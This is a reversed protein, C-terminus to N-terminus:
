PQETVTMNQINGLLSKLENFLGDVTEQSTAPSDKYYDLYFDINIKDLSNYHCDSTIHFGEGRLEVLFCSKDSPNSGYFSLNYKLSHKEALGNMQTFLEEDQWNKDTTIILRHQRETIIANPINYTYVELDDILDDFVAVSITQSTTQEFHNYNFYLSLIGSDAKFSGYIRIDERWMEVDYFTEDKAIVIALGNKQAYKHLQDFLLEQQGAQITITVSKKPTGEEASKKSNQLMEKVITKTAIGGVYGFVSGLLVCLLVFGLAILTSRKILM